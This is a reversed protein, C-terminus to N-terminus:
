FKAHFIEIRLLIFINCHPFIQRSDYINTKWYMRLHKAKLHFKSNAYMSIGFLNILIILTMISIVSLLLIIGDAFLFTQVILFKLLCNKVKFHISM